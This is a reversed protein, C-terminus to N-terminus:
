QQYCLTLCASVTFPEKFPPPHRLASTHCHLLKVVSLSKQKSHNQIYKTEVTQLCYVSISTHIFIKKHLAANTQKACPIKKKESVQDSPALLSECPRMKNSASM